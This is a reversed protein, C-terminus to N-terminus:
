LSIGTAFHNTAKKGMFKDIISGATSLKSFTFNVEAVGGTM